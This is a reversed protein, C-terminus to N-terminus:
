LLHYIEKKKNEESKEKNKEAFKEELIKVDREVINILIDENQEYALANNNPPYRDHIIDYFESNLIQKHSLIIDNKEEDSWFHGNVM